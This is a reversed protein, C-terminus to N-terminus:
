EMETCFPILTEVLVAFSITAGVLKLMHLLIFSNLAINDLLLWSVHPWEFCHLSFDIALGCVTMARQLSSGYSIKDERVKLITFHLLIYAASTVWSILQCM